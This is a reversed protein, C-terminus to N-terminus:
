LSLSTKGVKPISNFKESFPFLSIATKPNRSQRKSLTMKSASSPFCFSFKEDRSSFVSFSNTTRTRQQRKSAVRQSFASFANTRTRETEKSLSRTAIESWNKKARLTFEKRVRTLRSTKREFPTQSDDLATTMFKKSAKKNKVAAIAFFQASKSLLATSTSNIKLPM